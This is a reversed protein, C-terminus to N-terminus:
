LWELMVYYIIQINYHICAGHQIAQNHDPHQTLHHAKAQQQVVGQELMREPTDKAV